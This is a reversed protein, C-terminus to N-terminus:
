SIKIPRLTVGVGQCARRIARLYGAAGSDEGVQLAAMTPEVGSAAAAETFRESLESQLQKARQRGDLLQATM